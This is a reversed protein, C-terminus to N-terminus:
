VCASVCTHEEVEQQEREREREGFVREREGERWVYVALEACLVHTHKNEVCWVSWVCLRAGVGVCCSLLACGSTYCCVVARGGYRDCNSKVLSERVTVLYPTVHSHYESYYPGAPVTTVDTFM